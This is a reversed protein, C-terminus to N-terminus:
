QKALLYRTMFIGNGSEHPSLTLPTASILKWGKETYSKLTTILSTENERINKFNIGAISFLNNLEKEEQSGDEKTVIMKSRGIGGNVVSEITTIQMFGTPTSVSTKEQSFLASATLVLAACLTIIKKM